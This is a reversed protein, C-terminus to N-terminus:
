EAESEQRARVAAVIRQTEPHNSLTDKKGAAITAVTSRFFHELGRKTIPHDFGFHEAWVPIIQLFLEETERYHGQKHHINALNTLCAAYDPALVGLRQEYLSLAQECLSQSESYSKKQLYLGALNDMSEAVSSHSLGFIEKRMELAEEFLPQAKEYKSQHYYLMALNNISTAINPHVAGFLEQRISLAKTLLPTADTYRKQTSYMLGLNNLSEAIQPHPEVFMRQRMELAKKYLLEADENRGQGRYVDALNNTIQAANPHINAPLEQYIALAQECLPEAEEYRSMGIYSVSLNSLSDAVVVHREGYVQKRLKLARKSYDIAEERREQEEYFLAMNNLATALLDGDEELAEAVLIAREYLPEAKKYFGQDTYIGALNILSSVVSSHNQGFRAIAKELCKEYWLEAQAYQGQGEFFRGSAVFPWTLDNTDLWQEYSVAAEAIHPMFPSLTVTVQYSPTRPVLAAITTVIRCYAYKFADMNEQRELKALFYERMLQHLQYAEEGTKKLLSLNVLEDRGDEFDEREDEAVLLEALQWPIPAMAFLSLWCAILQTDTSLDQWSLEFVETLGLQRNMGAHAKQLARAEIRQAKLREQLKLYSTSTKKKLYYGVLELALPLCGLWECIEKATKREDETRKAGVIQRLLELATEESLPEIEDFTKVRPALWRQRTTILVHFRDAEPPLVEAVQEYDTVDDYVMLVQSDTTGNNPWHSWCFAVQAMLELDKPPEIHLYVRAFTVIKSAVDLGRVPLWCIGGPYDAVYQNAYQRVLETKGIGGMGWILVVSDSLLQEHLLLLTEDRGVFTPSGSVHVNNAKSTRKPNPEHLDNITLNVKNGNGTILVSNKSDQTSLNRQPIPYQVSQVIEALSQTLENDKQLLAILEVQLMQEYSANGSNDAIRELATRTAKDNKAWLKQYLVKATDFADSGAKKIAGEGLKNLLVPVYPAILRVTAEGVEDISVM